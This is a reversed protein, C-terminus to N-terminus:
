TQQVLCAIYHGGTTHTYFLINADSNITKDEFQNVDYTITVNYGRTKFFKVIGSPTAGFLGYLHVGNIEFEQIIDYLQIPSENNASLMVLANYTAVLGCGDRNITNFGLHM